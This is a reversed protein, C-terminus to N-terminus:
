SITRDKKRRRSPPVSLRRQRISASTQRRRRKWCRKKHSRGQRIGGDSSRRASGVIRDCMGILEPMESSILIIAMGKAALDAIMAHKEAKTGDHRADARRPHPRAARHAAMQGAGGEAPQWRVIGQGAAWSSYRLKMRKLWDAVLDIARDTGYFGAPAAKDLVPLVANDLISFDMVLSQGMRDESVYAIRM